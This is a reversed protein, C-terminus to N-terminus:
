YLTSNIRSKIASNNYNNNISINENKHNIISISNNLVKIKAELKEIEKQKKDLQKKYEKEKKEFGIKNNNLEKKLKEIKEEYEKKNKDQILILLINKICIFSVTQYIILKAELEM